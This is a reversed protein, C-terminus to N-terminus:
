LQKSRYLDKAQIHYHNDDSVSSLEGDAHYHIVVPNNIANPEPIIAEIVQNSDVSGYEGVRFAWEEFYDITQDLNTLEADILKNITSGTGKQKIMGQYFKVQSVDDLGLGQLYDKQNFGIIGKGLKDVGDELNLNDLEFFDKYQSSKNTLNKVLGTQM